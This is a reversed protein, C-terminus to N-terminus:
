FGKAVNQNGYTLLSRFGKTRVDKPLTLSSARSGDPDNGDADRV